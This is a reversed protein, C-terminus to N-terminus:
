RKPSSFVQACLSITTVRAATIPSTSNVIPARSYGNEPPARMPVPANSSIRSLNSVLSSLLERYPGSRDRSAPTRRLHTRPEEKDLPAARLRGCIWWSAGLSPTRSADSSVGCLAEKRSKGEAMKKRYYVGGRADSRAQCVAVM